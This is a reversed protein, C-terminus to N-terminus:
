EGFSQCEFPFELSPLRVKNGLPDVEKQKCTDHQAYRIILRYVCSSSSIFDAQDCMVTIQM